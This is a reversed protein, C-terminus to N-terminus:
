SCKGAGDERRGETDQGENEKNGNEPPEPIGKIEKGRALINDISVLLKAQNTGQIKIQDLMIKITDVDIKEFAIMKTEKM